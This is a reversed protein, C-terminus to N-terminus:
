FEMDLEEIEVPEKRAEAIWRVMPEWAMVRDRYAAAKSDLAVGYTVFRTCVPAYMADALTPRDGMLWPGGYASLCEDWITLVRRIDSRAGTFVKFKEFRARLNMPLASRLNYFGAHMEGCISRCHARKLREVPLLQAQPKLEDLYEAIAFTDWVSAGDHDLRPTLVTPSILLLEARADLDDQGVVVVEADLGALECCLWARLSWSSYNRSSITLQAGSM